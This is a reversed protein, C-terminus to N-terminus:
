IYKDETDIGQDKMDVLMNGVLIEFNEYLNDLCILHELWYVLLFLHLYYKVLINSHDGTLSLSAFLLILCFIFLSLFGRIESIQLAHKVNNQSTHSIFSLLLCITHHDWEFKQM